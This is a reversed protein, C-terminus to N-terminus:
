MLNASTFFAFYMQVVELSILFFYWSAKTDEIIQELIFYIFTTNITKNTKNAFVDYASEEDFENFRDIGFLLPEYWDSLNLAPSNSQELAIPEAVLRSNPNVEIICPSSRRVPAELDPSM